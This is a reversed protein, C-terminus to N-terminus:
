QLNFWGRLSKELYAADTKSLRGVFKLILGEHIIFVGRKVATEVNLGASQWESLVFAGSM